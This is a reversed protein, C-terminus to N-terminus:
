PRTGGQNTESKPFNSGPRSGNDLRKWTCAEWRPNRDVIRARRTHPSQSSISILWSRYTGRRGALASPLFNIRRRCGARELRAGHNARKRANGVAEARQTLGKPRQEHAAVDAPAISAQVQGVDAVSIAARFGKAAAPAAGIARKGECLRVSFGPHRIALEVLNLSRLM